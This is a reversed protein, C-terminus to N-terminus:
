RKSASRGRSMGYMAAIASVVEPGAHYAFVDKLAEFETASFWKPIEACMERDQPLHEFFACIVASVTDSSRAEWCWRAYKLVREVADVNGSRFARVFEAHLDIWLSMPSWANSIVSRMEPLLEIAKRRWESM